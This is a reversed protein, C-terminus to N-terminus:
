DNDIELEEILRYYEIDLNEKVETWYDKKFKNQSSAIINQCYVRANGRPMRLLLERAKETSTKM